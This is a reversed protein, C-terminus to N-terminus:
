AAKRRLHQEFAARAEDFDLTVRQILTEAGDLRKEEGLAELQQATEGMRVAGLTRSAGKLAHAARQIGGPNEAALAVRLNALQNSSSAIFDDVLEREFEADGCGVEAFQDLDVIAHAVPLPIISAAERAPRPPTAPVAAARAEPAAPAHPAPVIGSAAAHPAWRSLAALLHDQDVPKSIYDDMGVVLCRRRDGQLAHATMAIIPTHRGTRTERLRIETTAEFGDMEPMQVDMLVIDYEFQELMRVAERGTGVAEARIGWKELMRLAVKQNVPNDEALLVRLDKPLAPPAAATPAVGPEAHQRVGM